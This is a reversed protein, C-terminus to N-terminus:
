RGAWLVASRGVPSWRTALTRLGDCPTGSRLPSTLSPRHRASARPRTAPQVHTAGPARPAASSGPGPTDCVQVPRGDQDYATRVLVFVPVGPPLRLARAEEPRPMRARV